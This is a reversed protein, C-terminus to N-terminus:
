RPQTHELRVCDDALTEAERLVSDPLRIKLAREIGLLLEARKLSDFGWDRDLSSKLTGKARRHPHVLTALEQAVSLLIPALDASSSAQTQAQEPLNALVPVARAEGAPSQVVDSGRRQEPGADSM